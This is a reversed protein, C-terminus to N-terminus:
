CDISHSIGGISFNVSERPADLAFLDTRKLKGLEAIGCSGYIECIRRVAEEPVEKKGEKPDDGIFRTISYELIPAEGKDRTLSVFDRGGDMGGGSFYDCYFDEASYDIEKKRGLLFGM